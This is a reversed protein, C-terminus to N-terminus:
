SKLAATLLPIVEYMDGVIGYDAAKFIPAKENNNVAVIIKSDRIGFVHQVQGSIGIAIYLKPKVVAGSIGIYTELWHKEEVVGRTCSIEAGIAAALDKAMQLDEKKDMAMGVAVIKEAVTLDVREKVIPATESLMVRKDAQVDISVIESEGAIAAFKGAGVTVVCFGELVERTTVTGGYLISECITKGETYALSTVDSAMGCDLYGAVRAALDRGRPTAGVVFLDAGQSKLFDAIAKGYNEVLPNTGKLVYIKDAGSGKIAEAAQDDITIALAEQGTGKAFGILEGALEKKDSYIYIGGM